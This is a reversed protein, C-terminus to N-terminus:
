NPMHKDWHHYGSKNDIITQSSTYPPTRVVTTRRSTRTQLGWDVAEPLAERNGVPQLAQVITEQLLRVLLISCSNFRGAGSVSRANFGSFRRTPDELLPQAEVFVQVPAKYPEPLRVMPGIAAINRKRSKPCSQQHVTCWRPEFTAEM